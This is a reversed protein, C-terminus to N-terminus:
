LRPSLDPLQREGKAFADANKDNKAIQIVRRALLDNPNTLNLTRSLQIAIDHTFSDVQDAMSYLPLAFHQFDVKCSIISATRTM